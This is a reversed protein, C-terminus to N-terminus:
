GCAGSESFADYGIETVSSPIEVSTLSECDYFAENDIETVGEPIIGVGNVVEYKAM